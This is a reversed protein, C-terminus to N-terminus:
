FNIQDTCCVLNGHFVVFPISRATRPIFFLAAILLLILFCNFYAMKFRCIRTQILYDSNGPREKKDWNWFINALESQSFYPDTKSQFILCYKLSLYSVLLRPISIILCGILLSSFTKQVSFFAIIQFANILSEIVLLNM